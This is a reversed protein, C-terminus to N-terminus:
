SRVDLFHDIKVFRVVMKEMTANGTTGNYIITSFPGVNVGVVDRERMIDGTAFIIENQIQWSLYIVNKLM